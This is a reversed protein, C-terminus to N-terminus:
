AADRKLRTFFASDSIVKVGDPVVIEKLSECYEFLGNEIIELGAPLRVRELAFCHEFAAAGITEIGDELYIEVLHENDKFAYAEINKVTGPVYLREIMSEEGRPNFASNRIAVVRYGDIEKPIGIDTDECSGIGTVTCTRGDENVKYALGQSEIRPSTKRDTAEGCSECVLLEVGEYFGTAEREIVWKVKEHDCTPVPTTEGRLLDSIKCGSLLICAFILIVTLLVTKKISKM